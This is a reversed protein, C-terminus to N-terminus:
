EAPYLAVGVGVNLHSVREVLDARIHSSFCSPEEGVNYGIYLEKFGAADWQSKADAPLKELQECYSEICDEPTEGPYDCSVNLFVSYVENWDHQDVLYGLEELAVVLRDVEHNTRVVLDVTIYETKKM